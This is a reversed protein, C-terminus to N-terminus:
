FLFISRIEIVLLLGKAQSDDVFQICGNMYNMGFTKMTMKIKDISIQDEYQGSEIRYPVALYPRTIGDTDGPWRGGTDDFPDDEWAGPLIASRGFDVVNSRVIMKPDTHGHKVLWAAQARSRYIDNM